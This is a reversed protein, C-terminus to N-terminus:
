GGITHMAQRLPGRDGISTGRCAGHSAPKRRVGEVIVAELEEDTVGSRLPTMIDLEEESFLCPRLRGRATIRIRNCSACFAHGSLAGIIGIRGHAGPIKYVTAPGLGKELEELGGYAEEIRALIEGAEVHVLEPFRSVCGLPMLEIFRVEVPLRVTLGAFEAVEDDNFGKIAVVNVKVPRLGHEYAACIGRIVDDFADVRTIHAFKKRDLTDLSVNVRHLGSRRLERAKGALLVGNTTLSLDKVAGMASIRAIFGEIGKRLLPEGGTIRVKSVGLRSCVGLIREMEEYSLVDEHPVWETGVPPMCYRCRLNCRDTVSLRLYRIARGHLDVLGRAKPEPDEPRCSRPCPKEM